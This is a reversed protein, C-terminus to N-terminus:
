TEFPPSLGTIYTDLLITYTTNGITQLSKQCKHNKVIKTFKTLNRHNKMHASM